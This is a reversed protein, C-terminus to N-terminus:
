AVAAAPNLPAGALRTAYLLDACGEATHYNRLAWVVEAACYTRFALDSNEAGGGTDVRQAALIYDVLTTGRESKVDAWDSDTIPTRREFKDIVRLCGPTNLHGDTRAMLMHRAAVRLRQEENFANAQRWEWPMAVACRHQGEGVGAAACRHHRTMLDLLTATLVAPSGGDYGCTHLGGMNVPVPFTAGTQDRFFPLQKEIVVEKIRGHAPLRNGITAYVIGDGTTVAWVDPNLPDTSV